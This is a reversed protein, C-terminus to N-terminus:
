EFGLASRIRIIIVFRPGFRRRLLKKLDTTKKQITVCRLKTEFRRKSVLARTQVPTPSLLHGALAISAKEKFMSGIRLGSVDTCFWGVSCLM